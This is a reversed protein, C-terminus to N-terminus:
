NQDEQDLMPAQMVPYRDRIINCLACCALPIKLICRAWSLKCNFIKEEHTLNQNGYPKMLFEKLAFADDGILFFLIDITDVPFPEAQPLHLRDTSLGLNLQSNNWKQADGAAGDTGINLWIFKYNADVVAMIIISHFKKYNYIDSGANSPKQIAIHKGDFAGVHHFNWRQHFACWQGDTNPTM